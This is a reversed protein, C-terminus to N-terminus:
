KRIRFVRTELEHPKEIERGWFRGHDFHGVKQIFEKQDPERDFFAINFVLIEKNNNKATDYEIETVSRKEGEPIWGYRKGLLLIFLDRNRVEGVCVQLSSKNRSGDTESLFIDKCGLKELANKVIKREKVLGEIPSSIFISRRM